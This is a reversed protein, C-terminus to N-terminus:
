KVVLRKVVGNDMIRVFYIGSSLRLNSINIDQSNSIIHDAKLVKGNISVIQIDTNMANKVVFHDKVLTPSINISDAAPTITHSKGLSLGVVVPDHDSYRYMNPQYGAAAYGFLTPEDANVHFVSVGTVQPLLSASALANDLYGAENNYVYSYASDAHFARHLDTFGGQILSQIPDEKGYANLDGMILVDEDGYYSKYTGSIGALISNVEQVRTYNYCSQGDGMDADAGTASSCGSKAKLHNICFIFKENNSKLIFAQAKKRNIPSVNNNKLTLYPTVKDTRYLYAVKNYTGNVTTGDNVFSYRGAVSANNMANALATLATQGQQVEILGYIDADIALMAATIKTLQKASQAADTPGGYTPDFSEVLFNELNAACVKLNYEGLETPATPRSNGYFIPTEAPYLVYQTSAYDVVARLNTVREGTRRTGNAAALQIPTYNLTTIADDLILQPKGNSQVLAAYEASKPLFQNTPTYVRTPNLSLQGYQVLNTNSTVFLTQNFELMMGEYQEWNWTDANYQVKTVPLANGSSIKTQLTITGLQTRGSNETITGTVELKDGIAINDTTTSVFIGDSTLPNGDGAADQLFYGNVKGTGIFKSTVIGSTKVKQSVYSSTAGTGQIQPITVSTQASLTYGFFSIALFIFYKM